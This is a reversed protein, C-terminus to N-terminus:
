KVQLFLPDDSDRGMLLVIWARTGVSGVGVVKRAVDQLEFSELLVRRDLQLSSRYDRLLRRLEDVLGAPDYQAALKSVPVILPSQDVIRVRSDVVKTLKSFAAMSDRTRAKTLQEGARKVVKTKYQGTLEQITTKINLHAYWVDLNRMAA